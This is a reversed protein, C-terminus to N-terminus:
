RPGPAAAHDRDARSRREVPGRMAPATPAGHQADPSAIRAHQLPGDDGLRNRALVFMGAPQPRRAGSDVALASLERRSVQADTLRPKTALVVGIALVLLAGIPPGKKM